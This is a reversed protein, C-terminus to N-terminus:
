ARAPWKASPEVIRVPLGVDPAYWSEYVIAGDRVNRHHAERDSIHRRPRHRTGRARDATVVASYEDGERGPRDGHLVARVIERHRAALPLRAAATFLPAGACGRSCRRSNTDNGTSGDGSGHDPARPHVDWEGSLVRHHPRRRPNGRIERTESLSCRDAQPTLVTDTTTLNVTEGPGHSRLM